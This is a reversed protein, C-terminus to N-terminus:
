VTFTVSTPLHESAPIDILEALSMAGVVTTPHPNHQRNWPPCGRDILAEEILSVDEPAADPMAM